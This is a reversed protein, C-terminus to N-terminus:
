LFLMTAFLDKKEKRGGGERPDKKIQSLENEQSQENKLILSNEPRSGTGVDNGKRSRDETVAGGDILYNLNPFVACLLLGSAYRFRKRLLVVGRSARGVVKLMLCFAMRMLCVCM